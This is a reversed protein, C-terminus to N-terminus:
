NVAQRFPAPDWYCAFGDGDPDLNLRDREPGGAKLFAEQALDSSAYRACNQAMRSAGFGGRRYRAEGVRNTTGLAYQVINPENAGPRGPLPEPEIVVYEQRQAQLRARDSEITERASVAAFSQEDSIGPNNIDAEAAAASAATAPATAAEPRLAAMTQAAIATGDGPSAAVADPAVRDSAPPRVTIEERIAGERRASYDSYTDFGVGAAFDPVQPECASLALVALVPLGVRM